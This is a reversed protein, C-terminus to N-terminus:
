SAPDWKPGTKEASQLQPHVRKTILNQQPTKGTGKHIYRTFDVPKGTEQTTIFNNSNEIRTLSKEMANPVYEGTNM